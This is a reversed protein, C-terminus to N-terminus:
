RSFLAEAVLSIIFRHKGAANVPLRSVLQFEIQMDIGCKEKILTELQALHSSNLSGGPKLRVELHERRDQVVQFAEIAPITRFLLTWFTGSVYNGNTGVILDFTRGQLKEMLPLGRGCACPRDTPLGLDGIRYRILPMGYKHLDTVVIEFLSEYAELGPLRVFEVVLRDIMVHFGRHHECEGAIVGVERCGYRDFVRCGFQREIDERQRPLLTEASSIVSRIGLDPVRHQSLYGAFRHLPTPYGILTQPNFAAMKLVAEALDWDSLRFSSIFLRGLLIQDVMRRFPSAKALDLPSGWIQAYRDGLNLGAWRDCRIVAAFRHALEHRDEFFRINKGTSGGTSDEILRRLPVAHSLLDSGSQLIDDKTLLPLRAFDELSQIDDPRCGLEQMSRRYYPVTRYAHSLLRKLGTWQAEQLEDPSRWQNQMYFPILKGVRLGRYRWYLPYVLNRIFASPM